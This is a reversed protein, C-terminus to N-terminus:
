LGSAQLERVREALVADVEEDSLEGGEALADDVIRRLEALRAERSKLLSLGAAVVADPSDFEGSAIAEKIFGALPGTVSVQM